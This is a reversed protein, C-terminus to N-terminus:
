LKGNMDKIGSGAIVDESDEDSERAMRYILKKGCDEDLKRHLEQEMERKAKDM